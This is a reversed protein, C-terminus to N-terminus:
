EANRGFAPAVDRDHGCRRCVCKADIQCVNEPAHEREPDQAQDCAQDGQDAHLLTRQAAPISNSTRSCLRSTPEPPLTFFGGATHAKGTLEILGGIQGSADVVMDWTLNAIEGARLGAKASLLVMVANRLPHRTASAYVLLDQLDDKSLAKAQKGPLTTEM